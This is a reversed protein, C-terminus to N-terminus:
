SDSKPWFLSWLFLWPRGPKKTVIVFAENERSQDESM